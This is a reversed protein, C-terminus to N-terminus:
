NKKLLEQWNLDINNQIQEILQKNELVNKFRKQLKLWESIEIKNKPQYNIKLKGSEIEFLPWFNTEVALDIIKKSDKAEYYWGRICPSLIEIYKPGNIKLAKEIKKGLDNNFAPISQAIYPINMTELIKIVSKKYIEQSDQWDILTTNEAGIPTAGSKQIGTNMYAQNNYCIYLVDEGREAMGLLSQLGIDYTAGDGAIVIIKTKQGLVKRARAIGSAVAPASGFAVHITPVNWSTHPFTTTGVELCGTALVLIIPEHAANMIEAAAMGASCGLCLSHNPIFKNEM